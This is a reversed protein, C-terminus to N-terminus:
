KEEGHEAIYRQVVNLQKELAAVLESNIKSCNSLGSTAFALVRDRRRRQQIVLGEDVTVLEAGSYFRTDSHGFERNRKTFVKTCLIDHKSERWEVTVTTKTVKVIEVVHGTISLAAKDGVNVENLNLYSM